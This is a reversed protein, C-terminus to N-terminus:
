GGFFIMKGISLGLAAWVLRKIWKIDNKMIGVEKNLVGVHKAIKGVDIKEQNNM